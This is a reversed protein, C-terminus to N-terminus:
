VRLYMGGSRRRISERLWAVGAFFGIALMAFAVGLWLLSFGPGPGASEATQSDGSKATESDSGRNPAASETVAARSELLAKQLDKNKTSEQALAEQAQQLQTITEELQGRTKVLDAQVAALQRRAPTEASVFRLEVWGEAGQRDRVRVVGAGRELLELPAGSDITKVTASDQNASTRLPVSIRDIVYVTEASSQSPLMFLVFIGIFVPAIRSNM